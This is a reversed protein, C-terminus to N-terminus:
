NPRFSGNYNKNNEELNENEEELKKNTVTENKQLVVPTRFLNIFKNDKITIYDHSESEQNNKNKECLEIYRNMTFLTDNLNLLLEKKIYASPQNYGSNKECIEAYKKIVPLMNDLKLLDPAAFYKLESVYNITKDEMFNDLLFSSAHESKNFIYLNKDKCEPIERVVYVPNNKCWDEMEASLFEEDILCNLKSHGLFQYIKILELPLKLVYLPPSNKRADPIKPFFLEEEIKSISTKKPVYDKKELNEEQEEKSKLFFILKM